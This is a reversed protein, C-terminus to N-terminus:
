FVLIGRQDYVSTTEEGENRLARDLAM